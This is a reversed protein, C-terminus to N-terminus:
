LRKQWRAKKILRFAQKFTSPYCHIGKIFNVGAVDFTKDNDPLDRVTRILRVISTGLEDVHEGM